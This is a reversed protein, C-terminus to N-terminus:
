RVRAAFQRMLKLITTSSTSTPANSFFFAWGFTQNDSTWGAVAGNTLVCTLEPISTDSSKLHLMGRADWFAMSGDEWRVMKLAYRRGRPAPTVAFSRFSNPLPARIAIKILMLNGDSDPEFGYTGMTPGSARHLRVNGDCDIFIDGFEADARLTSKISWDLEPGMIFDAQPGVAKRWAPREEMLDVNFSGYPTSSYVALRHGDRSIGSITIAHGPSIAGVRAPGSPPYIAGDPSLTWPGDVGIRDFLAVATPTQIPQLIVSLRDTALAAHGHGVNFFRGNNWRANPSLRLPSLRTGAGVNLAVVKKRHIMFLIGDRFCCKWPKNSGFRQSTCTGKTLNASFVDIQNTRPISTVVHVLGATDDIFMELVHGDPLRDTLQRAGHLDDTWHLLRGDNSVGFLGWITSAVAKRADLKFPLLLPFRELTLILPFTSSADSRLPLPARKDNREGLIAALNMQATGLCKRGAPSYAYLAFRGDKSVTAVLWGPSDWAAVDRGFAADSLVDEHTILLYEVDDTAGDDAASQFASLASGPHPHPELSELLSILGDRSLLDVPLVGEAQARFVRLEGRADAIAGLALAVGAAFVRPIGWLRIGTDILIARRPPPRRPPSERRLYLAENLAVRVALTLDDHALESTLLRDFTGRNSLDSVGGVPLEQASSLARPVHVAAMLDQALRALGSLEEDNRLRQILERVQQPATLGSPPEEATAPAPLSELGTRRRLALQESDLRELGPRLSNIEVGFEQLSEQHPQTGAEAVPFVPSRLMEVVIAAAEAELAPETSEFVAEALIAKAEPSQRQEAPLSAVTHLGDAVRELEDMVRRFLVTSVPGAGPKIQGVSSPSLCNAYAFILGRRASSFLYKERCAAMLLVISGFPPLGRPALRALVPALEGRFTITAGDPWELTQGDASWRWFSPTRATLYERAKQRFAAISSM